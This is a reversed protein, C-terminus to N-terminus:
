ILRNSKGLNKRIRLLPPEIKPLDEKITKWLVAKNVGFYEHILKNRMGAMIKWPIYHYRKKINTPMRRSAEGIIEFNRIVADMVMSNECFKKFTLNTTYGEIKGVAEIIDDLHLSYDREPM